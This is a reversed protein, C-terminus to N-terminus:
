SKLYLLLCHTCSNLTIKYLVLKERHNLHTCDTNKGIIDLTKEYYKELYKTFQYVNCHSGSPLYNLSCLINFDIERGKTEQM